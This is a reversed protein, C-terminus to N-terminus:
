RRKEFRKLDPCLEWAKLDAIMADVQGLAAAARRSPEVDWRGEYHDYEGDAWSKLWVRYDGLADILKIVCEPIDPPLDDPPRYLDFSDPM